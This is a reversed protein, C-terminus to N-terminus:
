ETTAVAPATGEANETGEIPNGNEDLLQDEPVVAPAKFINESGLEIEASIEPDKYEHNEDEVSYMNVTMSTSLLGTQSNFKVNFSEVNMREPHSNIYDMIKKLQTYGSTISISMGSKYVRVAPSASEYILRNDQFAINSITCGVWNCLEVVTMITKEPKNGPGYQSLVVNIIDKSEEVGKEYVAKNENKATLEDLRKQRSNIENQVKNAKEVDASYFFKWSAAVLLAAVIVAGVFIYKERGKM